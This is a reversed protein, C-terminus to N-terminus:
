SDYGYAMLLRGRLIEIEVTDADGTYSGTNENIADTLDRRSMDRIETESLKTKM